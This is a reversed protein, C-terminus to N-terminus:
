RQDGAALRKEVFKSYRSMGYCCIFYFLGAFAYATTSRVSTAWKPDAFSVEIAKLFDFLSIIFVLTTDKFMAVYSNVINPISIKYVQPLIILAHARWFGLGLAAAGEYQGKPLSQLGGRITEAMYAGTFVATAVIASILLNVQISPPLMLPLLVKAMFLVTILPVGRVVEIIIICILRIAPLKSRRGLALLTGIPLSTVIGTYAIILSVTIGGWRDSEVVPLGLFNAGHILFYAVIPIAIFFYIAGWLRKPADLWLMWGLGIAFLVFAINIRWVHERPYTAYMFYDLYDGIYAWCAGVRPRQETPLCAERNEGTWVADLILFRVAPPVILYILYAGLLTLVVNSPSSFLNQRLWGLWGTTGRPPPLAAKDERAIYSTTFDTM